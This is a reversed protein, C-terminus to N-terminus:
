SSAAAASSSSDSSMAARTEIGLWLMFLMAAPPLDADTELETRRTFMGSSKVVGILEDNEIIDFIGYMSWYKRKMFLTRDDFKVEFSASWFGSRQATLAVQDQADKMTFGRPGVGVSRISFAEGSLIIDAKHRLALLPREIRCAGTGPVDVTYDPSFTRLPIATIKM